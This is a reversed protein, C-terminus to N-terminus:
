PLATLMSLAPSHLRPCITGTAPQPHSRQQPTNLPKLVTAGSTGVHAWPGSSGLHTEWSDRQVPYWSPKLHHDRSRWFAGGAGPLMGALLVTRPQQLPGLLARAMSLM